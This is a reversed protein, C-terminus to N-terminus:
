PLRRCAGAVHGGADCSSHHSCCASAVSRQNTPIAAPWLKLHAQRRFSKWLGCAPRILGNQWLIHKATLLMIKLLNFKGLNLWM